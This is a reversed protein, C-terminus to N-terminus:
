SFDIVSNKSARFILTLLFHDFHSIRLKVIKRSKSFNTLFNEWERRGLKEQCLFKVSQDDPLQLM